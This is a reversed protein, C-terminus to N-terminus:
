NQTAATAARPPSVQDCAAPRESFHRARLISDLAGSCAAERANMDKNQQNDELEKQAKLESETNYSSPKIIERQMNNMLRGIFFKNLLSVVAKEDDTRANADADDILDQVTRPVAISGGSLSLTGLTGQISRLAKLGTKAFEDSVNQRPLDPVPSGQTAASTASKSGSNLMADIVLKSVRSKHLAILGDPSTDFSTRSHKIVLVITQDPIEAQVLKVIEANTLPKQAQQGHIVIAAFLLTLLCLVGFKGGM